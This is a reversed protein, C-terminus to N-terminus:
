ATATATATSATMMPAFFIDLLIGPGNIATIPTVTTLQAIL